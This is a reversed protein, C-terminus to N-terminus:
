NTEHYKMKRKNFAPMAGELVRVICNNIKQNEIAGAKFLFDIIM